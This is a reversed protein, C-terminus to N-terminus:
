YVNGGWIFESFGAITPNRGIVFYQQLDIALARQQVRQWDQQIPTEKVELAINGNFIFDIEQGTKKQYYKKKSHKLLDAYINREKM